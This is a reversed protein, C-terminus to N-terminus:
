CTLGRLHAAVLQALRRQAPELQWSFAYWLRNLIWAGQTNWNLAKGSQVIQGFYLRSNYGDKNNPCLLVDVTAPSCGSPLEVGPMFFYNYGAEEAYSVGPFMRKLEALEDAPFSMGM